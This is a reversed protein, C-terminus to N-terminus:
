IQFLPPYLTRASGTVCAVVNNLDGIMYFGAIQQPNKRVPIPIESLLCHQSVDDDDEEM